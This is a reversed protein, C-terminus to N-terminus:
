QVGVLSRGPLVGGPLAPQRLVGQQGIVASGLSPRHGGPSNPRPSRLCVDSRSGQLSPAPPGPELAMAAAAQMAAEGGPPPRGGGCAIRVLEQGSAAGTTRGDRATPPGLSPSFAASGPKARSPTPPEMLKRYATVVPSGCTGAATAAAARRPSGGGVEPRRPSVSRHTPPAQGWAPLMRTTSAPTGHLSPPAARVAAAAGTCGGPGPHQPLAPVPLGTPCVPAAVAAAGGHGPRAPSASRSGLVSQVVPVLSRTSLARGAALSMPWQCPAGPSAFDAEPPFAMAAGVIALGEPQTAAPAAATVSPPCSALELAAGGTCQGSAHRRGSLLGSTSSTLSTRGSASSQTAREVCAAISSPQTAGPLNLNLTPLPSGARTSPAHTLSGDSVEDPGCLPGRIIRHAERRVGATCALGEPPVDQALEAVAEGLQETRRHTEKALDSLAGSLQRQDGELRGLREGFERSVQELCRATRQVQLSQTQLAEAVQDTLLRVAVEAGEQDPIATGQMAADPGDAKSHASTAQAAVTAGEGRAPGCLGDLRAGLAAVAGDVAARLEAVAARRARGEDEVLRALEVLSHPLPTAAGGATAISCGATTPASPPLVLLELAASHLIEELIRATERQGNAEVLRSGASIAHAPNALNWAQVLGGDVAAVELTAEDLELGLREGRPKELRVVIPAGTAGSAELEAADLAKGPEGHRARAGHM